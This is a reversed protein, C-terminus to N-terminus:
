NNDALERSIYVGHPEMFTGADIPDADWLNQGRHRDANPSINYQSLQKDQYDNDDSLPRRLKILNKSKCVM